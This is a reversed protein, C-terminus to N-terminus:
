IGLKRLVEREDTIAVIDTKIADIEGSDITQIANGAMVTMMEITEGVAETYKHTELILMVALKKLSEISAKPRINGSQGFLHSWLKQMWYEAVMPWGSVWYDYKLDPTFSTDSDLRYIQARDTANYGVLMFDLDFRERRIFREPMSSINQSIESVIFRAFDQVMSEFTDLNTDEDSLHRYRYAELIWDQLGRNNSVGALGALSRDRKSLMLLKSGIDRYKLMGVQNSITVRKDTALVIGDLGIIAIAISM